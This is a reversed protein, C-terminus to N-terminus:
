RLREDVEIPCQLIRSLCVLEPEGWYQHGSKLKAVYQPEGVGAARFGGSQDSALLEPHLTAMEDVLSGITWADTTGARAAGAHHLAELIAHGQCCGDAQVNTFTAQHHHAFAHAMSVLRHDEAERCRAAEISTAVATAEAM